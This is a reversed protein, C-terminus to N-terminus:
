CLRDCKEATKPNFIARRETTASTYSSTTLATLQTLPLFYYIFHGFNDSFYPGGKFVVRNDKDVLADKDDDNNGKDEEEEEPWSEMAKNAASCPIFFFSLSAASQPLEQSWLGTSIPQINFTM